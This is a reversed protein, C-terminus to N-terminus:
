IVLLLKDDGRPPAQEYDSVPDFREELLEAALLGALKFQGLHPEADVRRNKSLNLARVFLDGRREFLMHPALIVSKGNYRALM